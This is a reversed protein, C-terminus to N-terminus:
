GWMKGNRNDSAIIASLRMKYCMKPNNGVREIKAQTNMHALMAVDHSVLLNQTKHAISARKYTSIM